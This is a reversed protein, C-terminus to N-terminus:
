RGSGAPKAAHAALASLLAAPDAPKLFHLDFGEAKSRAELGQFGTM